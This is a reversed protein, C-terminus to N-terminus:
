YGDDEKRKLPAIRSESFGFGLKRRQDPVLRSLCVANSLIKDTFKQRFDGEIRARTNEEAEGFEHVIPDVQTESLEEWDIDQGLGHDELYRQLLTNPAHRLFSRLSYQGAM